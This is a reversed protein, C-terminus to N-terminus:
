LNRVIESHKKYSQAAGNLNNNQIHKEADALHQQSQKLKNATTQHWDKAQAVMSKIQEISTNKKSGLLRKAVGAAAAAAGAVALGVGLDEKLHQELAKIKAKWFQKEQDTKAQSHQKIADAYAREADQSKNYNAAKPSPNDNTASSSNAARPFPNDNIETIQGKQYRRIFTHHKAAEAEHHRLNRLELKHEASGETTNDLRKGALKAQESHHKFLQEAKERSPFKANDNIEKLVSKLKKM